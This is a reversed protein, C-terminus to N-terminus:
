LDRDAGVDRRAFVDVGDEDDIDLSGENEHGGESWAHGLSALPPRLATM